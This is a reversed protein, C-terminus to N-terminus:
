NQGMVATNGRNGRDGDGHLGRTHVGLLNM